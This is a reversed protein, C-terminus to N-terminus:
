EMIEGTYSNIHTALSAIPGCKEDWVFAVAGRIQNNLGKNRHWSNAPCLSPLYEISVGQEAMFSPNPTGKRHGHGMHWACYLADAWGTQRTENAMLGALRLGSKIASGHDFGVLNVGFRHFRFPSPGADVEVNADNRYYAKLTRGLSMSAHFDHNGPVSLVKVPAEEKLREVMRIALVEGRLMNNRFADCEPQATGKTTLNYINDSHLYDSGFPFLIRSFPGQCEARVLLRELLDMTMRECDDPTWDIDSDGAYTRMGLHIDLLSVELERKVVGTKKLAPRAIVPVVPSASEMRKVLDEFALVEPSKRVLWLTVQFNTYTEPTTTTCRDAGTGNTNKIAMTVEWSNVKARDIEWVDLDIEAVRLADEITKIDLSRTMIVVTGKSKNEDREIEEVFPADKAQKSGVKGSARSQANAKRSADQTAQYKAYEKGLKSGKVILNRVTKVNMGQERAFGAFTFTGDKMAKRIQKKIKTKEKPTYNKM